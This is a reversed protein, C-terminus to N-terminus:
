KREAKIVTAGVDLVGALEIEDGKQKIDFALADQENSVFSLKDGTENVQYKGAAVDQTDDEYKIVWVFDGDAEFKMESEAIIEGKAEVGAIKFSTVDWEGVLKAQEISDDTQKDDDDKKCSSFGALVLLLLALTALNIKSLITKM